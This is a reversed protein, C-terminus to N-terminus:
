LKKVFHYGNNKYGLSEYFKHAAERETASEIFIKHCNLEKAKKEMQEMLQKGVGHKRYEELVFLEDVEAIQKPYRIVDRVSFTLFGTIVGGDEAILIFNSPNNLVKHFSDNDHNSYRASEVFLNYLKMLEEYDSEKANRITM